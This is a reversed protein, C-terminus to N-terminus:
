KTPQTPSPRHFYVWPCSKLWLWFSSRWPPKAPRAILRLFEQFILAFDSFVNLTILMSVVYAYSFNSLSLSFHWATETFNGWGDCCGMSIIRGATICQRHLHNSYSSHGKLHKWMKSEVWSSPVPRSTLTWDRRHLIVKIIWYTYLFRENYIDRSTNRQRM